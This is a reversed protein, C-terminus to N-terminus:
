PAPEPQMTIMTGIGEATFIELLLSHQIRGDLIHVREVGAEIAAVCSELKPLMGATVTGGDLIRRIGEETARQILSDERGLVWYLGEVDTLYVLKKAGLASALAGAATDANM